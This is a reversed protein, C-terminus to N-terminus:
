IASRIRIRMSIIIRLIDVSRRLETYGLFYVGTRDGAYWKKKKKTCDGNRTGYLVFM